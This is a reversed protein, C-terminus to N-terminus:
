KLEPLWVPKPIEKTFAVPKPVDKLRPMYVWRPSSRKPWTKIGEAMLNGLIRGEMEELSEEEWVPPLFKIGGKMEGKPPLVAVPLDFEKTKFKNITKGKFAGFYSLALLATMATMMMEIM